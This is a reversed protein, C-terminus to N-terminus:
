GESKPSRSKPGQGLVHSVSFAGSVDREVAGGPYHHWWRSGQWIAEPSSGKSTLGPSLDFGRANLLAEAAAASPVGVEQKLPNGPAGVGWAHALWAVTLEVLDIAARQKELAPVAGKVEDWPVSLSFVAVNPFHGPNAYRALKGWQLANREPPHGFGGDPALSIELLRTEKVARGLKGALAVHSWHSPTFDHRAVAQAARLRFDIPGTGGFLMLRTRGDDDGWHRAFWRLNDESPGRQAKKVKPNPKRATSAQMTM